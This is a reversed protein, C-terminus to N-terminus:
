TAENKAYVDEFLIQQKERYIVYIVRAGGRRGRSGIGVRLKRFGGTGPVLKGEEPNKM